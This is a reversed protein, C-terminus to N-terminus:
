LTLVHGLLRSPFLPTYLYSVTTASDTPPPAPRPTTASSVVSTARAVLSPLCSSPPHIYFFDTFNTKNSFIQNGNFYHQLLWGSLDGRPGNETGRAWGKDNYVHTAPLLNWTRGPTPWTCASPQTYTAGSRTVTCNGIRRGLQQIRQISAM